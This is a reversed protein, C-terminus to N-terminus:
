ATECGNRRLWEIIEERKIIGGEAPMGVIFEWKFRQHLDMALKKNGTVAYLINLALDAPGSGGYGWEFGTPSHYVIAHPVNATACGNIRKLVIDGGDYFVDMKMQEGKNMGRDEAQVKAWCIPGFGREISEPDKLARNCRACKM